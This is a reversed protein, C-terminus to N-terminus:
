VEESEFQLIMGASAPETNIQLVRLIPDEASVLIANPLIRALEFLGDKADEDSMGEPIEVTAFPIGDPHSRSVFRGEHPDTILVSVGNSSMHVMM